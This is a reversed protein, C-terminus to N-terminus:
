LIGLIFDVTSDINKFPSNRSSFISSNSLQISKSFVEFLQEEINSIFNVLDMSDFLGDKGYLVHSNIDFIKGNDNLIKTAIDQVIKKIEDKM